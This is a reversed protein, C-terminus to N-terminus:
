GDERTGEKDDSSVRISVDVDPRQEVKNDKRFINEFNRRFEESNIVKSQILDGTIDNRSAM